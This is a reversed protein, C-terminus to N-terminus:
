EVFSDDMRMAVSSGVVTMAESTEVNALGAAGQWDGTVAVAGPLGGAVVAELEDQLSAAQM